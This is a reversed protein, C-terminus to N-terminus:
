GGHKTEGEAPQKLKLKIAKETEPSFDPRIILPKDDITGVIIINDNEDLKLM